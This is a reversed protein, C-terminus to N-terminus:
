RLSKEYRELASLLAQFDDPLPATFTLLKKSVPHYFALSAAHLAQRQFQQLQAHFEKWLMEESFPSVKTPNFRSLRTSTASFNLKKGYLPDGVIPHKIHAMHVRIQHTRGTMLQVNLLTFHGYRQHILYRTVAEKGQACVAMKLRNRPHRGYFTTINGGAVLNGQVLALYRRDITRARMQRNLDTYAPLTKAVILLGTTEKDLRHIIGARPLHHLNAHYYLLANVLTHKPNGAGPHVILGAPKNIVMLAEDEYSIELPIAEPQPAFKADGPLVLTFTIQENGLVKDKPKAEQMNVTILGKKLWHSLQSRSYQPFLQALVSDLRQGYYEKPILKQLITAENM